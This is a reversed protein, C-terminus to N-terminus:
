TEAKQAFTSGAFDILASALLATLTSITKM